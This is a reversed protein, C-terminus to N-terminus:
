SGFRVRWKHGSRYWRVTLPGIWVKHVTVVRSYGMSFSLEVVAKRM